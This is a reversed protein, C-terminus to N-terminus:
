WPPGPHMPLPLSAPDAGDLIARTRAIMMRDHDQELARRARVRGSATGRKRQPPNATLTPCDSDHVQRYRIGNLWVAAHVQDPPPEHTPQASCTDCLVYVTKM